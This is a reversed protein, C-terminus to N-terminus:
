AGGDAFFLAVAIASSIPVLAEVIDKRTYRRTRRTRLTAASPIQRPRTTPTAINV